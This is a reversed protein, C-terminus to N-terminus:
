PVTQKTAEGVNARKILSPELPCLSKPGRRCPSFPSAPVVNFHVVFAADFACLIVCWLFLITFLFWCASSGTTPSHYFYSRRARRFPREGHVRPLPPLSGRMSISSEGTVAASARRPHTALLLYPTTITTQEAM